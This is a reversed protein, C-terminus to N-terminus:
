WNGPGIRELSRSVAAGARRCAGLAGLTPAVLDRGCIRNLIAEYWGGPVGAVVGRQGLEFWAHRWLELWESLLAIEDAQWPVDRAFLLGGGSALLASRSVSPAPALPLWLGYAPLWEAWKKASMRQWCAPMSPWRNTGPPRWRRASMAWGICMRRMPKRVFWGPSRACGVPRSGSYLRDIRPWCPPTMSRSLLWNLRVGRTARRAVEIFASPVAQGAPIM